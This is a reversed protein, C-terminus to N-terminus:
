QAVVPLLRIRERPVSWQLSANTAPDRWTVTDLSRSRIRRVATGDALTLLGDDAAEFLFKEAAVPPLAGVAAYGAPPRANTRADGPGVAPEAFRVAVLGLVLGAGAPLAWRVWRDWAPIAPQELEAAMRGLLAADVRRPRLQKLERELEDLEDIM